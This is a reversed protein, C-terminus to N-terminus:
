IWFTWGSVQGGMILTESGAKLSSLAVELSKWPYKLAVELSSWFSTTCYKLCKKLVEKLIIWSLWVSWLRVLNNLGVPETFEVLEFPGVNDDNDLPYVHSVHGIVAVQDVLAVHDFPWCHWCPWIINLMTLHDVIDVLDYAWSPWITLLTLLTM